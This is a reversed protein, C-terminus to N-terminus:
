KKDYVLTVKTEGRSSTSSSDIILSKNADALKWIEVTKIEMSEGNMDFVMKSSITMSKKDAAWTVTSKKTTTGFVTNTCEKGDLSYKENTTMEEGSQRVRTRELTLNSADQTIVLKLAAMRFGSEGQNSKSENYAWTGTFNTSVQQAFTSNLILYFLAVLVTTFKLRNNFNFNGKTKM